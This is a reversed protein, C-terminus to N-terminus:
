RPVSLTLGAPRPTAFEPLLVAYTSVALATLLFCVRYAATYLGVDASTAVLGLLIVDFSVLLSRFVRSGIVFGSRGLLARGRTLSPRSPWGGFIYALLIAIAALESAFQIVPVRTVDGSSKVLLLAGVLYACQTVLLAWGGSGAKGIGRLVWGPDIASTLLSLASIMLVTRGAGERTVAPAILIVAAASVLAILVRVGIVDAAIRRGEAPDRAVEAAGTDAIAMAFAAFYGVAATAFGLWGFAEVGLTRALYATAFFGAARALMEASALGAFSVVHSRDAVIPKDVIM